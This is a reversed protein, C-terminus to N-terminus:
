DRPAEEPQGLAADLFRDFYGQPWLLSSQRFILFLLFLAQTFFLAKGYEIRIFVIGYILQSCCNVACLLMALFGRTAAAKEKKLRLATRPAAKKAPAGGKGGKGNGGGTRRQRFLRCALYCFYALLLAFLVFYVTKETVRHLKVFGSLAFDDHSKCYPWLCLAGLNGAFAAAFVGPAGKTEREATDCLVTQLVVPFFFGVYVPTCFWMGAAAAAGVALTVAPVRCFLALCLCAASVGFCLQLPLHNEFISREFSNMSYFAAAATVCLVIASFVSAKASRLRSLM